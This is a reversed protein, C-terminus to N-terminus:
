FGKNNFLNGAAGEAWTMGPEQQPDHKGTNYTIRKEKLLTGGYTSNQYRSNIINEETINYISGL